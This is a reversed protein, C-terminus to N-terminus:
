KTPKGTLQNVEQMGVEVYRFKIGYQKVLAHFAIRSIIQEVTYGRKFAGQPM